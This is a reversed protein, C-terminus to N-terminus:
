ALAKRYLVLAGPGYGRKEMALKEATYQSKWEEYQIDKAYDQMWTCSRSATPTDIIQPKFVTELVEKQLILQEALCASPKHQGYSEFNGESNMREILFGSEELLNLLGNKGPLHAYGVAIIVPTEHGHHAQLIKPVWYYNREGLTIWGKWVEEEDIVTAATIPDGTLYFSGDPIHPRWNQAAAILSQEYPKLRNEKEEKSFQVNRIIKKVADCDAICKDIMLQTEPYAVLNNRDNIDLSDVPKNKEKFINEIHADMGESDDSLGMTLDLILYYLLEYSLTDPKIDSDSPSNKQVVTQVFLKFHEPLGLYWNPEDESRFTEIEPTTGSEQTSADECLLYVGESIITQCSPHLAAFPLDHKTGVLYSIKGGKQLKFFIPKNLPLESALVSM